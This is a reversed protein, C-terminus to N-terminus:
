VTTSPSAGSWFNQLIPFVDENDKIRTGSQGPTATGRLTEDVPWISIDLWKTYKFGNLQTCVFSSHQSSNNTNFLLIQFLKVTHM